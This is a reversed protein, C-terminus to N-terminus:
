VTNRGCLMQLSQLYRDRTGAIVEAPLRPAPPCKDWPQSELWNRVFQKDLSPQDRGPTYQDAPWFRSSDPTLIEDILIVRRDFLGFEFKTDAIIIGRSAALTAARDYLALTTARLQEALGPGLAASMTEFPVNQDHGTEAKTAPTFVPRPLRDCQRLGRPLAIGCVTGAAQYEKWGSGALYGRAVCEFPIVTAKRVLMSRGRLLDAYSRLSDPYTDADASILHNETLDALTAFWHLSLATLIKGKDPIGDDLVVDFASLRDTAVILLQSGLDYVDRVKGRRVPFPLDTAVVASMSKVSRRSAFIQFRWPFVPAGPV